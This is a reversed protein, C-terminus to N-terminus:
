QQNKERLRNLIRKILETKNGSIKLGYQKCMEKLEVQKYKRWISCEPKNLDNMSIEKLVNNNKKM